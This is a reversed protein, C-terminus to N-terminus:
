AAARRWGKFKREAEGPEDGHLPVSLVSFGAAQPLTEAPAMSAMLVAWRISIRAHQDDRENRRRHEDPAEKKIKLMMEIKQSSGAKEYFKSLTRLKTTSFIPSQGMSSQDDTISTETPATM